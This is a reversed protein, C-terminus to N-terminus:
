PGCSGDWFLRLAGFWARGVLWFLLCGGCWSFWGSVRGLVAPHFGLLFSFPRLCDIVPRLWSVPFLWFPCGLFSGDALDVGLDGEHCDVIDQVDDFRWSQYSELCVGSRVSVFDCDRDVREGCLFVM